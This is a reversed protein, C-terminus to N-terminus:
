REGEGYQGGPGPRFRYERLRGWKKRVCERSCLSQAKTKPVFEKGCIPCRLPNV